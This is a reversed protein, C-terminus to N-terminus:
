RVEIINVTFNIVIDDEVFPIHHITPAIGVVTPSRHIIRSILAIETSPQFRFSQGIIGIDFRHFRHMVSTFDISKIM